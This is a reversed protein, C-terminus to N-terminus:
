WKLAKRGVAASVGVLLAAPFGHWVVLHMFNDHDCILQTAFLGMAGAAVAIWAGTLAPKTSAARRALMFGLASEFGALILLIPGCRGRYFDMECQLEGPLDMFSIKLFAILVLAGILVMGARQEWLTMLGPVASRYATYSAMFFLALSLGAELNFLPSVVCHSIDGRLPIIFFFLAVLGITGALWIMLSRRYFDAGEHPKLKGSLDKILDDTKM